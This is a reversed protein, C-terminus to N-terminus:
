RQAGQAKAKEVSAQGEARMKNNNAEQANISAAIGRKSQLAAQAIATAGGAGAGTARITSLTNALAQDSQQAQLDAAQTAVQLNAFTNSALTSTDTALGSFDQAGRRLDTLRESTDVIMGSRDRLLTTRDRDETFLDSRDQIIGSKDRFRGYPNQIESDEYLQGGLQERQM